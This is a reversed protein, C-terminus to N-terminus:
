YLKLTRELHRKTRKYTVSCFLGRPLSFLQETIMRNTRKEEITQLIDSKKPTKCWQLQATLIQEAKGLTSYSQLPGVQAQLHLQVDGFSGCLNVSKRLACFREATTPISKAVGTFAARGWINATSLQVGYPPNHGMTSPQWPDSNNCVSSTNSPYGFM